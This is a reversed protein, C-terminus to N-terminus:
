LEYNMVRILAEVDEGTNYVHLSIRLAGNRVSVIINESRLTQMLQMPDIHSPLQVGFLHSARHGEKEIIFGNNQLFSILPWSMEKSYDQINNVGWALIQSLSIDLMPCLVFNSFEGVNYRAAYPLYSDTYATLGSFEKANIRNMWSQEIPHGNDFAPGYYAVGLSYPGLLWKYAACVLADIHCDEVDIAMAGVSQTGDVLFRTDTEQCRKGIAKLDFIIGNAWHIGSIVIAATDSTISALIQANWETARNEPSAPMPITRLSKDHSKCWDALAYYDSPFEEGVIIAENGNNLPLNQVANAMGYSVSPIIAVREPASNILKGFQRKINETSAFFADQTIQQPNNKRHIGQMGAAEVSKLQPSMYAGNLYHVDKDLQFLDKQCSIPM